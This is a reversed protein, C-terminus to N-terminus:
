PERSSLVGIRRVDAEGLAALLESISQGLTPHRLEPAIEALPALVFAREAIRPHPITLEPTNLSLDDYFLIDIDLVRPGYRVGGPARGAGAEVRKVFQLLDLPALATRGAVALNRFRPQDTVLLPATDYVSSVRDVSVSRGLAALAHRLHDDRDGLNSGLGLYVVHPRAGPTREPRHKM